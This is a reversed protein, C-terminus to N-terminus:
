PEIPILEPNTYDPFECSGLETESNGYEENNNNQNNDYENDNNEYEYIYIDYEVIEVSKYDEIEYEAIEVNKYDEIEYEEIEIIENEDDENEDDENEDDENEDDKNEDERIEIIENKHEEEYCHEYNDNRTERKSIYCFNNPTYIIGSWYDDYQINGLRYNFQFGYLYEYADNYDQYDWYYEDIKFHDPPCILELKSFPFIIIILLFFGLIREGNNM